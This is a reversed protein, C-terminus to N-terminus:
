WDVMWIFLSSYQFQMVCNAIKLIIFRMYTTINACNLKFSEIRNAMLYQGNKILTDWLSQNVYCRLSSITWNLLKKQSQFCNTSRISRKSHVPVLNESHRWYFNRERLYTTTMSVYAIPMRGPCRAFIAESSLLSDVIFERCKHRLIAVMERSLFSSLVTCLYRVFRFHRESGLFLLLCHFYLFFEQWHKGRDVLPTNAVSVSM